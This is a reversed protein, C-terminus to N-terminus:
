EVASTRVLQLAKALTALRQQRQLRLAGGDGSERLLNMLAGARADSSALDVRPSFPGGGYHASETYGSMGRESHYAESAQSAVSGLLNTFASVPVPTNGVPVTPTGAGGLLTLFLARLTEPRTLVQLLLAAAQQSSQAPGPTGPFPTATSVAPTGAPMPGGISPSPQLLGGVVTPTTSPAPAPAPHQQGAAIAAHLAGGALAGAGAGITTGVGPIISGVVGGVIPLAAAVVNGIDDWVDEVVGAELGQAALVKEIMHDPLKRHSEALLARVNPYKTRDM